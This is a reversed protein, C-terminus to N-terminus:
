QLVIIQASHLVDVGSQLFYLFSKNVKLGLVQTMEKTLHMMVVKMTM